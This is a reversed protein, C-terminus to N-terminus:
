KRSATAGGQDFLIIVIIRMAIMMMLLMIMGTHCDSWSTLLLTRTVSFSFLSPRIDVESDSM